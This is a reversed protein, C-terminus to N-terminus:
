DADRYRHQRRLRAQDDRRYLFNRAQGPHPQHKGPPCGTPGVRNAIRDLFLPLTYRQWEELTAATVAYDSEWRLCTITALEHVLHPHEPWCIPIARDVRWTHNENIWSAVDDLWTYILTRLEPPCSAPDWPRPLMAIGRLEHESTPPSIAALRLHDLADVILPSPYPFPDAM